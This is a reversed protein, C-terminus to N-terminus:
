RCIIFLLLAVSITVGGITIAKIQKKQRAAVQMQRRLEKDRILLEAKLEESISSNISDM